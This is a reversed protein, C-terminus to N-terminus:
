SPNNPGADAIVQEVASKSTQAEKEAKMRAYFAAQAAHRKANHVAKVEPSLAAFAAKQAASRKAFFADKEEPTLKAL